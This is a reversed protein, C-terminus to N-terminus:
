RHGACHGDIKMVSVKERRLHRDVELRARRVALEDKREAADAYAGLARSTDLFVLRYEAVDKATQKSRFGLDGIEKALAEYRTAARRLKPAEAGKIRLAEVDDLASNVRGALQRCERARGIPECGLLLAGLLVARAVEIGLEHEPLARGLKREARRARPSLQSIALPHSASLPRRRPGQAPFNATKARPRCM